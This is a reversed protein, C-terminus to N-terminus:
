CAYKSFDAFGVFNALMSALFMDWNPVQAPVSLSKADTKNQQIIAM